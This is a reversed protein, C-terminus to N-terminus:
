SSPPIITNSGLIRDVDDLNLCLPFLKGNPRKPVRIFVSWGNREYPNHFMMNWAATGLSNILSTHNRYNKWALDKRIDDLAIIRCRKYIKLFEFRTSYEGGDFLCLDIQEPLQDGVFPQQACLRMEAMAEGLRQDEPILAKSQHHKGDYLGHNMPDCEQPKLVTGFLFTIRDDPNRERAEAIMQPSTDISWMRQEPRVLGAALCKTSGGGRWCGLEVITNSNMALRTLVRGFTSDPLIQGTIDQSM